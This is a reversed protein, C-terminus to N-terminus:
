SQENTSLNTSMCDVEGRMDRNEQYISEYKAKDAPKM